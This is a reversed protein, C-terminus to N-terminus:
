TKRLVYNFKVEKYIKNLQFLYETNNKSELTWFYHPRPWASPAKFEIGTERLSRLSEPIQPMM